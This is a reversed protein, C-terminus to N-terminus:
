AIHVYQPLPPTAGRMIVRPVLHLHTTLKVIGAAKSREGSFLRRYRKSLLSPPDWIRDPHQIVVSVM